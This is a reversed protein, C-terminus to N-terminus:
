FDIARRPALASSRIAVELQALCEMQLLRFTWQSPLDLGPKRSTLPQADRLHSRVLSLTGPDQYPIRLRYPKAGKGAPIERTMESSWGGM